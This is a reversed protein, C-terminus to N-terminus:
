NFILERYIVHEFTQPLPVKWILEYNKSKKKNSTGSWPWILDDKPIFLNKEQDNKSSQIFSNLFQKYTMQSVADHQLFIGFM